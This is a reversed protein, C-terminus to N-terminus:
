QTLMTGEKNFKKEWNRNCETKSILITVGLEGAENLDPQTNMRETNRVTRVTIDTERFCNKCYTVYNLQINKKSEHHGM